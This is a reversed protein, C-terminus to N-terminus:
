PTASREPGEFRKELEIEDRLPIGHRGILPIYPKIARSRALEGPRLAALTYGRRQYFRLAELNDNSTVLRVRPRAARCAEAEVSSLLASGVGQRPRASDLTVVHCATEELDYTVLGVIAGEKEAVFGALGQPSYCRGHVVVM